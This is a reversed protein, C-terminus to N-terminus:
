WIAFVGGMVVWVILQYTSYLLWVNVPPGEFLTFVLTAPAGFGIYVLAGVILGDLFSGAGFANVALALAIMAVGSAVATVIYMRNDPEIDERRKGIMRLWASGFLPGYWLFGILNSAVIGVLVGLWNVDSFSIM